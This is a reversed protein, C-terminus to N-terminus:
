ACEHIAEKRPSIVDFTIGKDRESLVLGVIISLLLDSEWVNVPIPLKSIEKDNELITLILLKRNSTTEAILSIGEPLFNTNCM